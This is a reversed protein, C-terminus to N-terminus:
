LSFAKELQNVYFTDASEAIDGKEAQFQQWKKVFFTARTM